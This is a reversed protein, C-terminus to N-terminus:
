SLFSIRTRKKFFYVNSFFSNLKGVNDLLTGKVIVYNEKFITRSICSCKFTTVRNVHHHSVALDCSIANFLTFKQKSCLERVHM